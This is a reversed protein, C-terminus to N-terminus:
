SGEKEVRQRERTWDREKILQRKDRLQRGRGLGLVVKALGRVLRVEIPVLAYGQRQVSARLREIENRHLLLKRTRDAEPTTHTSVSPLPSIRFGVLWAEGSRFIVHSDGAQGRGARLGKIEWGQLALGAQFQQEIDYDFRARRNVALLGPSAQSKKNRAMVFMIIATATLTITATAITRRGM